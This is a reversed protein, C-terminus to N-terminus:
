LYEVVTQISVFDKMTCTVQHFLSCQFQLSLLQASLSRMVVNTQSLQMDLVTHM